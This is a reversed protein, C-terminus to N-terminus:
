NRPSQVCASAPWVTSRGSKSPSLQHVLDDSVSRDHEANDCDDKDDHQTDAPAVIIAQLRLLRDDLALEILAFRVQLDRDLVVVADDRFLVSLHRALALACRGLLAIRYRM